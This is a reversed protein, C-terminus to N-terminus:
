IVKGSERGPPGSELWALLATLSEPSLGLQITQDASRCEVIVNGAYLAFAEPGVPERRGTVEVHGRELTYSPRIGLSFVRFWELREGAYRGIGLTWGRASRGSPAAPRKNLSLEFTGGSRALLRRRVIMAVGVLIALLVLVGFSDM